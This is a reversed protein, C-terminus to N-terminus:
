FRHDLTIMYTIIGSLGAAMLEIVIFEAGLLPIGAQKLKLEILQSLNWGVIPKAIRKVLGYFKTSLSKAEGGKATDESYHRRLRHFVDLGRTKKLYLILLLTLLFISIASFLATLFIM